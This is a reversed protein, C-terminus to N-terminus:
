YLELLFSIRKILSSLAFYWSIKQDFINSPQSFTQLPTPVGGALSSGSGMTYGKGM